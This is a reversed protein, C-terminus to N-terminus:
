TFRGSKPFGKPVLRGAQARDGRWEMLDAETRNFVRGATDTWVLGDALKFIKLDGLGGDKYRQLRVGKGRTMEPVQMLPFVVMKRNEGVVAVTDGGAIREARVLQVSGTVNLVQKGKRTGSLLEGESVVFGNGDSSVVLRKASADAVFGLVIDAEDELDIALRIPDGQGRGGPLKDAGLTFARGNTSLFILKDTTLAPFAIKLKDGDKYTVNSLDSLHGKLARLFGKQSLVVTVPEKEILAVAIDGLSHEPADAFLTRRKGLKTKKSFAERVERVEASVRSWQLEPSGLLAVKDAREDSLQDFEKKLEFEELKRLSRLRMNLIAEAQIDTLGFTAIMVQKPEDEERIIRIVEDLNLFAILYGALIELRREIQDLRFQSRRVLVERQHALWEVLVEKLSMVRPVKGGSLVNM